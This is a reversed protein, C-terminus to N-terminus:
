CRRQDRSWSPRPSAATASGHGPAHRSTREPCRLSGAGSPCRQAESQAPQHTTWTRGQCCHARLALPNDVLKRCMRLVVCHPRTLDPACERLGHHLDLRNRPGQSGGRASGAMRRGGIRQAVRLRDPRRDVRAGQPLACCVVQVNRRGPFQYGGPAVGHAPDTGTGVSSKAASSRRDRGMAALDIMSSSSTSRSGTALADSRGGIASHRRPLCM